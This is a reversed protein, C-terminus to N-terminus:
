AAEEGHAFMAGSGLYVEQVVPDNRVDLGRESLGRALRAAVAGAGDPHRGPDEVIVTRGTQM